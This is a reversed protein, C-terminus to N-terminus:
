SGTSSDRQSVAAVLPSVSAVLSRVVTILKDAVEAKFVFASAGAGFAKRWFAPDADDTMLVIPITPFRQHIATTALLGDLGVFDSDVVVADPRLQNAREVLAAGDAVIGVVDFHETLLRLVSSEVRENDQALLLTPTTMQAARGPPARYTVANRDPSSEPIM